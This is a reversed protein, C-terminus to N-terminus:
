GHLDDGLEIAAGHDVPALRIQQRAQAPDFNILFLNADKNAGDQMGIESKMSPSLKDKPTFQSIKFETLLQLRHSSWGVSHLTLLGEYSAKGVHGDGGQFSTESKLQLPFARGPILHFDSSLFLDKDRSPLPEENIKPVPKNLSPNRAFFEDASSARSPIKRSIVYGGSIIFFTSILVLIKHRIVASLLASM